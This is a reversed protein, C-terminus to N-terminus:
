NRRHGVRVGAPRIQEQAGLLRPRLALREPLQDGLQSLRNGLDLQVDRAHVLAEFCPPDSVAWALSCALRARSNAALSCAGLRHAQAPNPRASSRQGSPAVEAEFDLRV